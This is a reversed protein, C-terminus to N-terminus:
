PAVLIFRPGAVLVEQADKAATILRRLQETKAPMEESPVYRLNMEERWLDTAFLQTSRGKIAETCEDIGAVHWEIHRGRHLSGFLAIARIGSPTGMVSVTAIDNASMYRDIGRLVRMYDGNANLLRRPLRTFSAQAMPCLFLLACIAAAARRWESGLVARRVASVVPLAARTRSRMWTSLRLLAWPICVVSTFLYTQIFRMEPPLTVFGRSLPGVLMYSYAAFVLLGSAAVARLVLHRGWIVVYAHALLTTCFLVLCPWGTLRLIAVPYGLAYDLFSRHVTWFEAYGNLVNAVVHQPYCFEAGKAMYFAQEGALALGLMSLAVATRNRCRRCVLGAVFKPAQCVVADSRLLYVWVLV